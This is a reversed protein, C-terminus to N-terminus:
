AAEDAESREPERHDDLSHVNTDDQPVDSRESLDLQADDGKRKRSNKRTTAPHEMGPLVTSAMEEIGLTEMYYNLNDLVSRLKIPDRKGMRQLRLTMRFAQADLGKKAYASIEQGLESTIRGAKNMSEDAIKALYIVDKKAILQRGVTEGVTQREPEAQAAAPKKKLSSKAKSKPKASSKPRSKAM